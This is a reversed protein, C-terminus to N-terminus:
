AAKREDDTGTLSRAGASTGELPDRLLAAPLKPAETRAVPAAKADDDVTQDGDSGSTAVKYATGLAMALFVFGLLGINALTRLVILVPSVAEMVEESEAKMAAALEDVEDSTMAELEEEAQEYVWAPYEDEYADLRGEDIAQAAIRDAIVAELDDGTVESMRESFRQVDLWGLTVRGAVIVALTISAAVLGNIVSSGRQAAAGRGAVLGIGAACGVLPALFMLTADTAWSALTLLAGMVAAAGISWAIAQRNMISEEM